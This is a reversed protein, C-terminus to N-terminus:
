CIDYWCVLKPRCQTIRLTNNKWNKRSHRTDASGSPHLVAASRNINEDEVPINGISYWLIYRAIEPLGAGSVTMLVRPNNFKNTSRIYKNYNKFSSATFNIAPSIWERWQHYNRVKCQRLPQRHNIIDHSTVRLCPLVFPPFSPSQETYFIKHAHPWICRWTWAEQFEFTQSLSLSLSLFSLTASQAEPEFL